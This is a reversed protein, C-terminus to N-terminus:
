ARAYLVLEAESDRFGEGNHYYEFIFTTDTETLYNLGLLYSAGDSTVPTPQGASDLVTRKSDNIWAVEGHIELASTVASSFDAGVRKGKAGGSLAMLDIDTHGVLMYLKGAVDYHIEQGFDDNVDPTTPIFVASVGVTRVPGDSLSRTYDASAM